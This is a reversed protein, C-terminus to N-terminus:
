HGVHEATFIASSSIFSPLVGPTSLIAGSINFASISVVSKNCGIITFIHVSSFYHLLQLPISRMFVKLIIISCLASHLVVSYKVNISKSLATSERLLLSM